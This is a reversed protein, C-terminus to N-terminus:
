QYEGERRLSQAMSGVSINKEVISERRNVKRERVPRTEEKEGDDYDDEEELEDEEEDRHIM